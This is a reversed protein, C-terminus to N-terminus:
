GTQVFGTNARKYAPRGFDELGNIGPFLSLFLPRMTQGIRRAADSGPHYTEFELGGVRIVAHRELRLHFLEVPAPPATEVVSNGDILAQVPTLISTEGGNLIRASPGTLLCSSPRALGFSDSMIRTLCLNRARHSSHGPVFITSGIWRLEMVDGDLTLLRDGPLLDEIAMPGTETEVMSGRAFASFAEEFLPLAPALQYMEQVEGIEDLTQIRYRRVQPRTSRSTEAPGPTTTAPLTADPAASTTSRRPQPM